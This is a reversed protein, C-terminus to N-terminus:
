CFQSTWTLSPQWSGFSCIPPKCSSPDSHHTPPRKSNKKVENSVDLFDYGTTDEFWGTDSSGTDDVPTERLDKDCGTPMRVLCKGANKDRHPRWLWQHDTRGCHQNFLSGRQECQAEDCIDHLENCKRDEIWGTDPRSTDDIPTEDLDQDCGTPMRVLCRGDGNDQQTM